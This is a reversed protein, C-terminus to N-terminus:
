EYDISNINYLDVGNKRLIYLLNQVLEIKQIGKTDISLVKSELTKTNFFHIQDNEIFVIQDNSIDLQRQPYPLKKILQGFQDLYYLGRDTHLVINAGNRKIEYLEDYAIGFNILNEIQQIINGNLDLKYLHANFVDIAWIYNDNSLTIQDIEPLTQFNLDITNILNLFNNYIRIKQQAKYFALLNMPNEVILDHLARDIKLNQKNISKHASTFKEITGEKNLIYYHEHHDVFIDEFQGDIHKEQAFNSLIICAFVFFLSSKIM